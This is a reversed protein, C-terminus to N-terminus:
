DFYGQYITAILPALIGGLVPIVYASMFNLRTNLDFPWVPLEDIIGGVKRLRNILEEDKETIPQNQSLKKSIKKQERSIRRSVKLLLREKSKLMKGPFPLLPGIFVLPGFILYAFGASILLPLISNINDLYVFSVYGLFILNVGFVSLLYQNRLGLFGIPRLGGCKDPHGPVMSLKSFKVLDSCFWSICFSRFVYITAITYFATIGFLYFWGALLIKGDRAIWFGVDTLVYARYNLNAIFIGFITGALQSIQNCIRFIKKWKKKLYLYKKPCIKLIKDRQLKELSGSLINDDILLFIVLLPFSFLFLFGTNLDWLFPVKLENTKTWFMIPNFASFILMPLYTACIAILGAWFIMPEGIKNKDVKRVFLHLLSCEKTDLYFDQSDQLNEKTKTNIKSM